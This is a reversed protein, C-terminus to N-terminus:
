RCVTGLAYVTTATPASNDFTAMTLRGFSDGLFVATTTASVKCATAGSVEGFGQRFRIGRKWVYVDKADSRGPSETAPAASGAVFSGGASAKRRKLEPSMRGQSGFSTSMNM